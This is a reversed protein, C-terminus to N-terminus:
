IKLSNLSELMKGVAKNVISLQKQIFKPAKVRHLCFNNIGLITGLQEKILSIFENQISQVYQKYEEKEKIAEKVINDIKVMLKTNEKEIQANKENTSVLEHVKDNLEQLLNTKESILSGLNKDHELEVQKLERDILEFNSVLINQASLLEELETKHTINDNEIQEEYIKKTRQLEEQLIKNQYEIGKVKEVWDVREKQLVLETEKAKLREQWSQSEEAISQELRNIQEQLNTLESVTQSLKSEIAKKEQEKTELMKSFLEKESDLKKKWYDAASPGSLHELFDQNSSFEEELQRLDNEIINWDDM